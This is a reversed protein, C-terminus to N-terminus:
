EEGAYFDTDVKRLLDRGPLVLWKDSDVHHVVEGPQNSAIVYYTLDTVGTNAITHVWGPPQLVHDGARVPIPDDGSQVIEGTGDLFLYYEWQLSHAHRPFARAGPPVTFLDVEFPRPAATESGDSIERPPANLRVSLRKSRFAFRGKPSRREFWHVDSENLKVAPATMDPM